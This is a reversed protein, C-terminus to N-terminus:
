EKHLVERITEALDRKLIPKYVLAQIGMTRAKDENIGASFGTCLIVPIDPEIKIFEKALNEGTMNPMTMDTIVLDFHDSRAKFLELAEISSTRTVVDYGLSELLKKGMDVLSLEDDIFLICETGKSVPREIRKDQEIRTEIAPFYVTFVSGKGLESYVAIAGGHSKVIGHVVSLGMGTGEGKEKTTFFPDFIQNLVNSPMGHGNDSVTVKLYPGPKLDPHQDAYDPGLEVDVSSVDLLGGKECMAHGANTCLNMLVQHIQTPDALVTADSQLNQKIEITTPLSARILRLVEKAIPKIQIPKTEQETQRSFTLIQKVLDKARLGANLVEQLHSHLLSERKVDDIAL